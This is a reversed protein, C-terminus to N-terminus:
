LCSVKNQADVQAGSKVLSHITASSEGRAAAHLITDGSKNGKKLVTRAEPHSLLVELVAVKNNGAAWHHSFNGDVDQKDHYAGKSLLM